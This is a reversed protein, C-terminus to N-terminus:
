FSSDNDDAEEGGAATVSDDDTAGRGQEAFDSGGTAKASAANKAGSRDELDDSNSDQLIFGDGRIDPQEGGITPKDKGKDFRQDNSPDAMACEGELGAALFGASLGVTGGIPPL